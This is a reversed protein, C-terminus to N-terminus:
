KAGFQQLLHVLDPRRRDAAAKLPTGSKGSANPDSGKRLLIEVLAANGSSVAYHLATADRNDTLHVDAGKSLLKTCLPTQGSYAAWMLATAGLEDQCNVNVSGDITTFALNWNRSKVADVLGPEPGLMVVKGGARFVYVNGCIQASAPDGAIRPLITQGLLTFKQPDYASIICRDDQKRFFFVRGAKLDPAVVGSADPFTGVVERKEPDIVQGNSAYLLGSSYLITGPHGTLLGNAPDGDTWGDPGVNWRYLTSASNWGDCAYLRTGDSNFAISTAVYAGPSKQQRETGNDFLGVNEYGTNPGKQRVVAVRESNSPSVSVAAPVGPSCPFNLDAKHTRLNFRCVSKAGNLAVYLYKGDGSVAMAGPDLGVPIPKEMVGTVPDIVAISNGNPGFAAPLSAYLKHSVADYVLDSCNIPAQRVYIPRPFATPSAPQAQVTAGSHFLLWAAIFCSFPLRLCLRRYLSMSLFCTSVSM